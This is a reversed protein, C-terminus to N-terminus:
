RTDRTRNTTLIFPAKGGLLVSSVSAPGVALREYHEFPMGLFHALAAQTTSNHMVVAVAAPRGPVGEPTAPLDPHAAAIRELEAIVRARMDGPSEGGPFRGEAPRERIEQWTERTAADEGLERLLRGTYAGADTDRLTLRVRVTLGRAAALPLATEIARELASSYIADLPQGDFMAVLAQAQGRGEANLHLNPGHGPLRGHKVFDNTAHRILHLIPMRRATYAM